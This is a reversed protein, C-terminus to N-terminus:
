AANATMETHGARALSACSEQVDGASDGGSSPRRGRALKSNRETAWTEPEETQCGKGYVGKTKYTTTKGTRGKNAM